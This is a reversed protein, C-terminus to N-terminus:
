SNFHVQFGKESADLSGVDCHNKQFVGFRWLRCGNCSGLNVNQDERGSSKNKSTEEVGTVCGVPRDSALAM